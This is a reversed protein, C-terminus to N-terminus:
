LLKIGDMNFSNKGDADFIPTCYSKDTPNLVFEDVTSPAVASDEAMVTTEKVNMGGPLAYPVSMGAVLMFATLRALHKKSQNM